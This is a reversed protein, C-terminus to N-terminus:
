IASMRFIIFDWRWGDDMADKKREISFYISRVMNSSFDPVDIGLFIAEQIHNVYLIPTLVLTAAVASLLHRYSKSETFFFAAIWMWYILLSSSSDALSYYSFFSFRNTGMFLYTIM